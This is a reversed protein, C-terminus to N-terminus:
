QTAKKPDVHDDKSLIAQRQFWPSQPDPLLTKPLDEPVGKTVDMLMKAKLAMRLTESKRALQDPIEFPEKRRSYIVAVNIDDLLVTSESINLVKMKEGIECEM